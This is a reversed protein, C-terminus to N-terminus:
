SRQSRKPAIFSSYQLPCSETLAGSHRSHRKEVTDNLSKCEHLEREEELREATRDEEEPEPTRRRYLDEMSLGFSALIDAPDVESLEPSNRGEPPTSERQSDNSPSNVLHFLPEDLASLLSMHLKAAEM